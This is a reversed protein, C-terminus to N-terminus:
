IINLKLGLPVEILQTPIGAFAGLQGRGASAFAPSHLVPFWQSGTIHRSFDRGHRKQVKAPNHTSLDLIKSESYGDSGVAGM